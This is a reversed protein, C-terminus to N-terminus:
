VDVNLGDSAIAPRTAGRSNQSSIRRKPAWTDGGNDSTRVYVTLHDIGGERFVAVLRNAGIAALSRPFAVAKGTSTLAVPTAPTFGAAAPMPDFQLAAVFAGLVVGAILRSVM